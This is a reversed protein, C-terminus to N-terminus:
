ALYFNSRLFSLWLKNGSLLNIYTYAIICKHISLLNPLYYKCSANRWSLDLYDSFREFTVFDLIGPKNITTYRSHQHLEVREDVTDMWLYATLPVLQKNFLLLTLVITMWSLLVYLLIAIHYNKNMRKKM